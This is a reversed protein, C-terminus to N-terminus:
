SSRLPVVAVPCTAHELVATSVSGALVRSLLGRQRTGVVILDAQGAAQEVELEALGPATRVFVPVDPYREGLGAMAESVALVDREVIEGLDGVVPAGVLAARPDMIYHLVRLPLRRLSAQHFAFELVPVADQSADVAVVVGDSVRGSHGPRHVVVPCAASRVVSVGVSGLLLSLAPGRGRSGLVMLDAEKAVDLLLTRPHTVELQEVIEVDPAARHAVEHAQTLLAESHLRLSTFTGPQVVSAHESRGPPVPMVARVLRLLRGELAAQEAAWRVAQGALASEDIGVVISNKRM